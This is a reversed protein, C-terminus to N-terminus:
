INTNELIDQLKQGFSTTKFIKEQKAPITIQGLTTPATVDTMHEEYIGLAALRLFADSIPISITHFLAKNQLLFEQDGPLLRDIIEAYQTLETWNIYNDLYALYIKALMQPKELGIYREVLILLYELEQKRYEKNEVFKRHRKEKIEKSCTEDNIASIFSCLKKLCHNDHVRSGIHYLKFATGVFPIDKLIGDEMCLDAGFEITDGAFEAIDVGISREFSEVLNDEKEEKM